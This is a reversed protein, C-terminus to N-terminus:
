VLQNVAITEYIKTFTEHEYLNANYDAKIIKLDQDILFMAPAVFFNGDVSTQKFGEDNVAHVWHPVHKIQRATRVVSPAVAYKKFLERENDSVIPFDPQTAHREYINKQISERKSPLIAIVRCGNDQLMQRELTLRHVALNCWPCGSYRLFAILTYEHTHKDLNVIEGKVGREWFLPASDGVKLKRM